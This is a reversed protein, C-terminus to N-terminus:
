FKNVDEDDTISSFNKKGNLNEQEQSINTESARQNDAEKVFSRLKRNRETSRRRSIIVFLGSLLVFFLALM